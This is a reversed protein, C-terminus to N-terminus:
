PTELKKIYGGRLWDHIYSKAEFTQFGFMKPIGVDRESIILLQADAQSKSNQDRHKSVTPQIPRNLIGQSLLNSQQLACASYPANFAPGTRVLHTNPFRATSAASPSPPETRGQSVRANASFSSHDESVAMAKETYRPSCSCM